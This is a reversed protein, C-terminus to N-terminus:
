PPCRAGFLPTPTPTPPTVPAASGSARGSPSGSRPVTPTASSGSPTATPNPAPAASPAPTASPTQTPVPQGPVRVRCGLVVFRDRQWRWVIWYDTGTALDPQYDSVVGVIEDVGDGDVDEGRMQPTDARLTGRQSLDALAGSRSVGVVNMVGGHAGVGAPVFCHGIRDCTPAALARDVFYDGYRLRMSRIPHGAGDVSAVYAVGHVPDRDAGHVLALYIGPWIAATVSVVSCDRPTCGAVAGVPIATPGPAAPRLAGATASPTPRPPTSSAPPAASRRATAFRLLEGAIVVTLLVALAVAGALAWTPLRKM